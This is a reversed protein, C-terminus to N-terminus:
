KEIMVCANHIVNIGKENCYNIAEESESGPQMWVKKINLKFMEKLINETVEPKVVTIVMDIKVPIQKLSEFCDNGNILKSTKNVPYVKFGSNKLDQYVKYGYKNQNNSVGVIAIVNDKNLFNSEM